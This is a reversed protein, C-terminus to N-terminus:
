NVENFTVDVFEIKTDETANEVVTESFYESEFSSTVSTFSFKDVDFPIERMKNQSVGFATNLESLEFNYENIITLIVESIKKKQNNRFNVLKDKNNDFLKTLKNRLDTQKDKLAKLSNNLKVNLTSIESLAKQFNEYCKDYEEDSAKDMIEKLALLEQKKSLYEESNLFNVKKDHIELKIKDLEEVYKNYNNGLIDTIGKKYDCSFTNLENTLKKLYKEKISNKLELYSSDNLSVVKVELEPSLKKFAGVNKSFYNYGIYATACLITFILLFAISINKQKM